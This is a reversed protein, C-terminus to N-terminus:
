YYAVIAIHSTGDGNDSVVETVTNTDLGVSHSPPRSDSTWGGFQNVYTGAPFGEWATCAEVDKNVRGPWFDNVGSCTVPGFVKDTYSVPGFATASAPLGGATATSSATAASAVALVVVGLVVFRQM